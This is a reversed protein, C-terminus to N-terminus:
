AAGDQAGNGREIEELWRYLTRESVNIALQERLRFKIEPANLGESRWGNIARTVAGDSADDYIHLTTRPAM